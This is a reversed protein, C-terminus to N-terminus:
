RDNKHSILKNAKIIFHVILSFLRNVQWDLIKYGKFRCPFHIM